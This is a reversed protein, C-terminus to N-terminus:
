KDIYCMECVDKNVYWLASEHDMAPSGFQEIVSWTFLKENLSVIRGFTVTDKHFLQVFSNSVKSSKKDDFKIKRHIKKDEIAVQSLFTVSAQPGM